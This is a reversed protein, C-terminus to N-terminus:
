NKTGARRVGNRVFLAESNGEVLREWRNDKGAMEVRVEADGKGVVRMGDETGAWRDVV